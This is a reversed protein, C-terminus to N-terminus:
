SLSFTAFAFRTVILVVKSALLIVIKITGMAGRTAGTGSNTASRNWDAEFTCMMPVDDGEELDVNPWSWKTHVPGEAKVLCLLREFSRTRTELFGLMARSTLHCEM